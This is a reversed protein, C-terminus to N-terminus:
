TMVVNKRGKQGVANRLSESKICGLALFVCTKKNRQAKVELPECTVFSTYKIGKDANKRVLRANPAPAEAM